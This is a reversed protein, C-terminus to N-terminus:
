SRAPRDPEEVPDREDPVPGRPWAQWTAVGGALLSAALAWLVQPLSPGQGPGSWGAVAACFVSAATVLGFGFQRHRSVLRVLPSQPLSRVQRAAHALRARLALRTMVATSLVGVAWGLVPADQAKIWDLEGLWTAQYQERFRAPQLAVACAVLHEALAASHRMRRLLRSPWMVALLGLAGRSVSSWHGNRGAQSPPRVHTSKLTGLQAEIIRFAMTLPVMALAFAAAGTWRMWSPVSGIHYAVIFGYTDILMATLALRRARSRQKTMSRDSDM